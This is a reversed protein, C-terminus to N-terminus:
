VIPIRKGPNFTNPCHPQARLLRLAGLWFDIM